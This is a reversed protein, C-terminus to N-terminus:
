RRWCVFGSAAERAAEVRASNMRRMTASTPVLLPELIPDPAGQLGRVLRRRGMARAVAVASGPRLAVALRSAACAAVLALTLPWAAVRSCRRLMAVARDTARSRLAGLLAMRASNMAQVWSDSHFFRVPPWEEDTPM